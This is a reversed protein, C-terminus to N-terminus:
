PPEASIAALQEETAQDFPIVRVNHSAMRDWITHPGNLLASAAKEAAKGNWEVYEFVRKLAEVENLLRSSPGSGASRREKRLASRWTELSRNTMTLGVQLARSAARRGAWLDAEDRSMQREETTGHDGLIEAAVICCAKFIRADRRTPKRNNGRRPALIPSVEGDYLACLAEILHTAPSLLRSADAPPMHSAAFQSLTCIAMLVGARGGDDDSGLTMVRLARELTSSLVEIPLHTESQGLLQMNLALTGRLEEIAYSINPAPRDPM